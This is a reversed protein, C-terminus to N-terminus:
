HIPLPFFCAVDTLSEADGLPPRKKRCLDHETHVFPGRPCRPHFRCGTPPHHPDATETDRLEDPAEEEEPSTVAPTGLTPVAALLSATYPHRPAATIKDAAGVEVVQGCYMVAITDSVYRVAALNHSIFLVTLGLEAQLDRLLNLVGGQVSVDLASTIEDAILVTPKAALARALSVRQRQGGSLQRPLATRHRPELGVLSLLRDVEGARENRRLDTRRLLGEAVSAGASMRPDLASSPDQFVLQVQRRTEDTLEERGLRIRGGDPKVLGAIARALTSKGSGSEGVLGVTTGSPVVLNAGDVATLTRGGSAFRVTLGEISLTPTSM